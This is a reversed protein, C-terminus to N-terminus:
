AQGALEDLVDAHGEAIRAVHRLSRLAAALEHSADTHDQFSLEGDEGGVSLSSLLSTAEVLAAKAITIQECVADAIRADTALRRDALDIAEADRPSLELTM